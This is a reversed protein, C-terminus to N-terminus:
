QGVGSAALAVAREAVEVRNRGRGKAEYLARDAAEVLTEADGLSEPVTAAVGISLSLTPSTSSAAHPIALAGIAERLREAVIRAGAPGTNAMIVAFEEGGYRAVLDGPRLAGGALAAGVRQLCRDGEQHGYTDNYRKFHDIDILALALSTGDRAARTWEARLVQDFHRRNAVGTLGDTLSLQELLRNARELRRTLEELEREHAERRDIEAKLRLASGVRALLEIENYPKTIYDSAGAEFAAKLIDAEKSATVMLIPLNGLAERAKIARIIAIGDIDPLVFDMLVLDVAEGPHGDDLGLLRFASAGSDAMLVDDYGVKALLEGLMARMMRSDEVVLIRGNCRPVPAASTDDGM